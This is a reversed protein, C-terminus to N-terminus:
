FDSFELNDLVKLSLIGVNEKEADAVIQAILNLYALAFTRILSGAVQARKEYEIKQISLAQVTAELERLYAERKRVNSADKITSAASGM